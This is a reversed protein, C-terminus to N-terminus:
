EMDLTKLQEKTILPVIKRFKIGYGNFQGLKDKKTVATYLVMCILGKYGSEAKNEGYNPWLTEQYFLGGADLSLENRTKSKNAYDKLKEDIVYAVMGITKPKLFKGAEAQSKFIEFKSGDIVDILQESEGHYYSNSEDAWKWKWWSFGNECFNKGGRNPLVINRLDQSYIQVLQKKILYRGLDWVM